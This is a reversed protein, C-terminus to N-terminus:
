QPDFSAEPWDLTVSESPSIDWRGKDGNFQAPKVSITSSPKKLFDFFRAISDDSPMTPVVVAFLHSETRVRILFAWPENKSGNVCAYLQHDTLTGAVFPLPQSIFPRIMSAFDRFHIKALELRSRRAINQAKLFFDGLVTKGIFYGSASLAYRYGLLHFLILHATKLLSVLSALSFDKDITIAWNDNHSDMLTDLPTKLAVQVGKGESDVVTVPSHNHPVRENKASYHEVVEGNRTFKPMLQRDLHRDSMIEAVNGGVQFRDKEQILSFESEFLSGYFADVDKRQVTWTRESDRFSQNILHAKCLETDEDRYLIPCFFVNPPSGTVSKYDDNLQTLRKKLESNMSKDETGDLVIM